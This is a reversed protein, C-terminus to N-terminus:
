HAAVAVAVPTATVPGATVKGYDRAVPKIHSIDVPEYSLQPTGFKAPDSGGACAVITSKLWHQDDRKMARADLSIDTREAMDDPIKFHAGRSEDRAIAAVTIAESLALMDRVAKAFLLTQNSWTGTDPMGLNNVFRHKLDQVM